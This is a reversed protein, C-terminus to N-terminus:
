VVDRLNSVATEALKSLFEQLEQAGFAKHIGHADNAIIVALDLAHQYWYSPSLPSSLVDKTDTRYEGVLIKLAGLRSTVGQPLVIPIDHDDDLNRSMWAATEECVQHYLNVALVLYRERIQTIEKNRRRRELERDTARDRNISMDENADDDEIWLWAGPHTLVNHLAKRAQNAADIVAESNTTKRRIWERLVRQQAIATETPNSGNTLMLTTIDEGLTFSSNAKSIVDKWEGFVRYAELYSLFAIHETRAQEVDSIYDKTQAEDMAPLEQGARDLFDDTLYEEVLVIASAIRDDEQSLFFDRLLMNSCILGDGLHEEYQLLWQLAHCKQVDSRSVEDDDETNSPALLLRVVRRLIPLESGMPLLVDRLQELIASREHDDVINVLVTPFYDLLTEEPLLSAYLALMHWMDPRSALHRVYQFLLENKRQQMHPLVIPTTSASLSDLYLTLHTLFRLRAIEEEREEPTLDDDADDMQEYYSSTDESQNRKVQVDCYNTVATSGVLFATMALQYTSTGRVTEYPSALLIKVADYETVGSLSSTALLQEQEQKLNKIGTYAIGTRRRNNNHWHLLEDEMRGWMSYIIAYLCKEWTRLCPNAISTQVDNALVSAIAAAAPSKSVMSSGLRWMQRKWLFRHPNGVPVKDIKKTQANPRAEVGAPAGGSWTAARWPQGQAHTINKAQELNGALLYSLCSKLFAEDALASFEGVLPPASDDPHTRSKVVVSSPKSCEIRVQDLCQEMWQIIQYRRRVVLPPPPPAKPDKSNSSASSSMTTLADILEKPTADVQSALQQLFMNQANSNQVNSTPDHAWILAALGLKRLLVLLNWLNGEEQRSQQDTVSKTTRAGDWAIRNLSRLFNMEVHCEQDALSFPSTMTALDTVDDGAEEALARQQHELDIRDSLSRRAKLYSLLADHYRRYHHTSAELFFTGPATARGGAEEPSFIALASGPTPTTVGRMTSGPTATARSAAAATVMGKPAPTNMPAPPDDMEMDEVDESSYGRPTAPTPPMRMSSAKTKKKKDTSSNSMVPTSARELLPTRKPTTTSTTSYSHSSARGGASAPKAMPEERLERQMWELANMQHHSHHSTPTGRATGYNFREDDDDVEMLSISGVRPSTFSKLQAAIAEYAKEADDNDNNAM